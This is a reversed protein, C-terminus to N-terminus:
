VGEHKGDGPESQAESWLPVLLFDPYPLLFHPKSKGAGRRGYQLAVVASEESPGRKAVTM